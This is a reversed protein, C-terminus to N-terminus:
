DAAEGYAHAVALKIIAAAPVALIVGLLGWLAGGALFAFIITVPHLTVARGLVLPGVFQDISLRLILCFVGAAVVQWLSGQGVAVLGVVLAASVPGVVPILELMAMVIALLPAHPLRLVLAIGVWAAIATYIFVALVGRVYHALVPNLEQVFRQGAPRKAPPLLWLMGQVLRPGSLLFYFLLVCVLFVALVSGAGMGIVLELQQAPLLHAAAALVRERVIQPTLHRGLVTQGEGGLCWRAAQEIVDPAHHTFQEVDSALQSAALYGFGSLLLVVVGVLVACALARPFRLRTVLWNRAPFCVYALGAALVFPLLVYRLLYITVAALGIWMPWAAKGGPAAPRDAIDLESDLHPHFVM